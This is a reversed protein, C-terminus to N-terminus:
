IHTTGNELTPLQVVNPRSRILHRKLMQVVNSMVTWEKATTIM